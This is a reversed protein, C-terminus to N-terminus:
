PLGSTPRRRGSMKGSTAKQSTSATSTRTLLSNRTETSCKWGSETSSRGARPGPYGTAPPMRIVRNGDEDVFSEVEFGVERKGELPRGDETEAREDCAHCVVNPYSGTVENDCFYCTTPATTM